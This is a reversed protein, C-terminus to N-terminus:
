SVYITTIILYVNSMYLKVFYLLYQVLPKDLTHQILHKGFM